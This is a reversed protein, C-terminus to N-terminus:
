GDLVERVKKQLEAMKFPKAVYGAVVPELRGKLQADRSYGSAIIVKVEPNIRLLEQLCKHGGMGPMSIDLVVLDIDVAKERYIALAEEGNEATITRYGKRSLIEQGINRIAREDDVLLVTESGGPVIRGARDKADDVVSALIAPLFVQFAAGQGVESHCIIHGGHNKVIGYVMALGLGTGKGIEKQTFFPDFIFEQTKKDMGHGTDSVTLKLYNGPSAVGHQDCYDEDLTANETEIILRGGEPMADNANSGLNMLVQSLQNADAQTLWLDEALKLEIKVMKPLTRELMKGTQVILRNLDIPKIEPELKRSFTLIQTVLDKAQDGAKIIERIQRPDSVGKEADDLVLESYGIIATLINNFDHAIGGALTGLAEMKQAQLLQAELIKQETMDILSSHYRGDPLYHAYFRVLKSTGDKCMITVESIYNEQPYETEWQEIEAEITRRYSEDPYAKTKWAERTSIDELSYGTLDIFKQNVFELNGERDAIVVAFPSNESVMRFLRESERLAKEAQKRETIDSAAILVAPEGNNSFPIKYTELISISGDPSKMTEEPIFKPIGSKIVEQDARLMSKLEEEDECLDAHLMGTMEDVTTGYFDTLKKNALIFRGDPNKACIYVPIIDLVTRLLNKATESEKEARKRDTIDEITGVSKLLNGKKDHVHQCHEHVIRVEGSPRILRHVFDYPTKNDISKDFLSDLSHLDDPHVAENFTERTPNFLKPDLGFINYTEKSWILQNTASDLVWSGVHSIEQALELMTRNEDLAEEVQKHEAVARELVQIRKELEEYTPKGGM